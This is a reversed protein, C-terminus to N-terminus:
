QLFITVTETNKTNFLETLLRNLIGVFDRKTMNFQASLQIKNKAKNQLSKLSKVSVFVWSTQMRLRHQFRLLYASLTLKM